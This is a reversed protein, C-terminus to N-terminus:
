ATVDPQVDRLQRIIQISVDFAPDAFYDFHGCTSPYVRDGDAKAFVPDVLQRDVDNNDGSIVDAVPATPPVATAAYDFLIPDGIPDSRRYLNRWPWTSRQAPGTGQRPGLPGLLFGGTRLLAQCSFYAPFFRAYLRRLPSGYTLLAVRSSEHFTMQMVVAAGIVSGQSHCSLVVRGQDAKDQDPKRGLYSIRHILDPVTRETYCPPALPHVARPWFTGVDWLIGVTRRIALHRYAQWGVYLTALVFASVLFTGITVMPRLHDNVWLRNHIYGGLGAAIVLVTALVFIGVLTEGVNTLSARAWQRAIQWGRRLDNASTTSGDPLMSPNVQEYTGQVHETFAPKTTLRISIFSVAVLVLAVAAVVVTAAATWFYGYPLVLTHGQHPEPSATGLLDAVRLGLGSAFGGALVVAGLMFVVAGLGGWAAPASVAEGKRGSGTIEEAPPRWRAMFAVLVFMILLLIAQVAFLGEAARGFWPLGGGGAAVATVAADPQVLLWTAGLTATVALWPLLAYWDRRRSPPASPTPRDTMGRLCALIASVALLAVIAALVIDVPADRRSRVLPAILFLGVTSIAATVHVARLKRVPETGNWMRRDELPTRLDEPSAAEVPTSELDAWTKRALGWLLIVVALPVLASVALRRGPLQLTDLFGLWSYRDSCSWAPQVCQWGLLNMSVSVTALVLTLTISLAYLRLVAEGVRRVSRRRLPDRKRAHYPMAWFAVNVLLFPTLLLWLARQGSGATLGGWSYAELRHEKNDHDRAVRVDEWSRRYFGAAADGAVRQVQPHQLMNAPPTGSVGHVRLETWGGRDPNVYGSM